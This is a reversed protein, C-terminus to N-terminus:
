WRSGPRRIVIVRDAGDFDPEIEDDEDDIRWKVTREVQRPGADRSWKRREPQEGPDRVVRQGPLKECFRRPGDFPQYTCDSARFSKYASACAQVDCRNNTTLAEPQAEAGKSAAATTTAVPQRREIADPGADTTEAAPKQAPEAKAMAEIASANMSAGPAQSQPASSTSEVAPPADLKTPYVPSLAVNPGETKPRPTPASASAQVAPKPQPPPSTLWHVELLITSISVMLVTFYVLFQM